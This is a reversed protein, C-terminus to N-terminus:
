CYVSSAKALRAVEVALYRDETAASARIFLVSSVLQVAVWANNTVARRSTVLNCALTALLLRWSEVVLKM